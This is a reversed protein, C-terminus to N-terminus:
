RTERLWIEVRRNRERGEDTADDAVPMDAGFGRAVAVHLGRARLQSAVISAREESLAINEARAGRGDSFGLLVISRPPASGTRGLFGAIRRLDGLARTDLRTSGRDFRFDISLRCAGRVSERYAQLCTTCTAAEPNCEPRLDVFGASQVIRQGAESLVFDLFDRAVESAGPPVYLYLRRALPYDETAVTMPSPLLAVSGADQVMVAKASRVYPLGIFGIGRGDGAVADSLAESSEFRKADATLASSGLVLHKFTDYTGSKNDRAYIAIPLTAGGIDSWNHVKGAFIQAIQTTTLSSIANRPNVIVAIGDLGIVHESAASAMDGLPALKVVEDDHIRRSSMGIDCRGSALDEFATASGHAHVEIGQIPGDRERAEVVTEDAAKRRRLVTAAGTRHQLFAEALAPALEAGITNSGHLRLIVKGAAESRLAMSAAAAPDRSAGKVVLVLAIAAAAFLAVIALILGAALKPGHADADPRTKAPASGSMGGRAARAAKPSEVATVHADSRVVATMPTAAPLPDVSITAPIPDLPQPPVLAALAEYAAAADEFRASPDRETCRAFWADFEPPLRDAHGLQAARQSAPLIPENAVHHLLRATTVKNANAGPFFHKGTLLLFALLGLAWVDTQPGITGHPTAQEPAMWAPTGLMAATADNADAVAKAIGFDLVKVMMRIGVHRPRSLFVNAPKLDRHVIGRAHAAGLAHTLQRLIELADRWAFAGRRRLERSLTTGELLELVIYLTGTAEDHGADVVQAVHDSPIVAAIRAEAVFRARLAGDGAFRGHMVKLARRAGTTIQEVEYVTGMGGEALARV